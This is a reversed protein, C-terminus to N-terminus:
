DFNCFIQTLIILGPEVIFDAFDTSFIDSGRKVELEKQRKKEQDANEKKMFDLVQNFECYM